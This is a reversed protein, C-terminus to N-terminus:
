KKLVDELAAFVATKDTDSLILYVVFNGYVKVQANELKPTETPIYSNYWDRYATLSDTLYGELLTKVDAAKGEEVRFFGMENLDNGETSFVVRSDEVYAPMSAIFDSLYGADATSYDQVALAAIAANCLSSLKVDDRYEAEKNCSVASLLLLLVLAISLIKKM